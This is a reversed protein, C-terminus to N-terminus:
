LVKFGVNEKDQKIVSNCSPDEASTEPFLYTETKLYSTEYM